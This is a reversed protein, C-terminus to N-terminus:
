RRMVSQGLRQHALRRRGGTSEEGGRRSGIGAWDLGDVRYARRLGEDIIQEAAAPDVIGVDAPRGCSDFVAATQATMAQDLPCLRDMQFPCQEVASQAPM